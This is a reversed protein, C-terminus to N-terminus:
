IKAYFTRGHKTAYWNFGDLLLFDKDDVIAELGQSLKIKKM